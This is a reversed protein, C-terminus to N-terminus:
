KPEDETFVRKAYDLGWNAGKSWGACFIRLASEPLFQGNSAWKIREVEFAACAETELDDVCPPTM